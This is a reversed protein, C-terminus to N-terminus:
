KPRMFINIVLSFSIADSVRSENTQPQINIQTIQATRRDREISRLFDLFKPYTTIQSAPVNAGTQPTITLELSYLGSIGSVPKAQSIASVASGTASTPTSSGGLTSTPFTISAIAIGSRSALQFIDLVAQAQDKDNPIVTKAVDNFYAYKQVQKKAQELNTLQTDVIKNQLKADVMQQSKSSLIKLGGIATILFTLAVLALLGILALRLQKPSLNM